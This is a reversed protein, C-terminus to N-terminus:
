NFSRRRIESVKQKRARHKGAEDSLRKANVKKMILEHARYFAKSFISIVRLESNEIEYNLARMEEGCCAEILAVQRQNLVDKYKGRNKTDVPESLKSWFESKMSHEVVKDNKHFELQEVEFPLNLRIMLKRIIDTPNELLEEYRVLTVRDALANDVLANLCLRQEDRWRCSATYTNQAHLRGKLMSAVVDRPDRVMYIFKAEPFNLALTYIHKFLGPEKSFWHQKGESEAYCDNLTSLVEWFSKTRTKDLVYDSSLDIDWPNLHSRTLTLADDVLARFHTAKGEALYKFSSSAMVDVMSFPPPSSIQSHSSLIARILNTGSRETAVLFIKQNTM